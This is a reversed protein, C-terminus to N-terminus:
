QIGPQDDLFLRLLFQLLKEGRRKANHAFEFFGLYNPLLEQSISRHPRLRSRLLSWFGEMTNIHVECFGDDDEDRGYEGRSHCVTEHGYGWESVRNYIDCEDTYVLIGAMITSTIPSFISTQKVNALMQIAVQRGM